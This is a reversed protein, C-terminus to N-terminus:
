AEPPSPLLELHEPLRLIAQLLYLYLFTGPRPAQQTEEV